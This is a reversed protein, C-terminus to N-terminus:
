LYERLIRITPSRSCGLSDLTIIIPQKVNYKPLSPRSKQTNKKVPRLLSGKIGKILEHVGKDPREDVQLQEHIMSTRIPSSTRQNEDEEPWDEYDAPDNMKQPSTHRPSPMDLDKDSLTMSTFSKRLHGEKG